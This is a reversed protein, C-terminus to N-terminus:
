YEWETRLVRMQVITLGLTLLFLVMSIAAGWGMFQYRFANNYVAVVMPTTQHVTPGRDPMMVNFIAFAQLTTLLTMVCVFLMTPRLLPLTVRWFENWANAGDIRAVERLEDPIGQLGAVFIILNYGFDQWVYAIVVSILALPIGAVSAAPDNLWSRPPTLGVLKILTNLVGQQPHYIFQWMFAVAVTSTLAPMFYIARFLTKLRGAVSEVLVALPLTISLNLPLVLFAFILSTVFQQRFEIGEPADSLMTTYHRVGVFPNNGGLGLFGEGVAAPSYRFLSIVAGWAMPFFTFCAMFAMTLILIGYVFVAQGARLGIKKELKRIMRGPPALTAM